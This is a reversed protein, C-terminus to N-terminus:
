PPSRVVRAGTSPARRGGAGVALPESAGRRAAQPGQAGAAVSSTAPRGRRHGERGSRHARVRARPLCGACGGARRSWAARPQASAAAIRDAAQRECSAALPSSRSAPKRRAGYGSLGDRRQGQLAERGHSRGRDPPKEQARPLSGTDPAMRRTAPLRARRSPRSGRMRSLGSGHCRRGASRRRRCALPKEGCSVTWPLSDPFPYHRANQM